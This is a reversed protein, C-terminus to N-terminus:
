APHHPFLELRKTIKRATRRMQKEFLQDTIRCPPL